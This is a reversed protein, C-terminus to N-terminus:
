ATTGWRNLFAREEFSRKALQACEEVPVGLPLVIRVTRDAPVGLLEGLRAARDKHRLMGDIWVTAYGLATVALLMNETSAACDELEFSMGGGFPVRVKQSVCVILAKAAAVVEVDCIEAARALLEPDDVIVFSTTQMNKGSPARIGAEVIKRLDERPVPADKFEGRYSHRKEIAEFVDM